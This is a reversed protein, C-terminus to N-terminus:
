LAYTTVGLTIVNKKREPVYGVKGTKGVLETKEMRELDEPTAQIDALTRRGDALCGIVTGREPAGNADHRIMYAEITLPGSAKEVPLPLEQREIENQASSDDRYEWRNGPPTAGYIGVSQKSNYWGNATILAKLKPDSRIKDTIAAIAHLSYNNGPGGFYPLGGTVSLGRPDDAALGLSQRAIEVASPFCSYIDFAGIDDMSLSAQELSLRAAETLAPSDILSPRQSVHWVNRFDAGGLPYVWRSRDIGMAEAMEESTLIVGAAQDVNINAMMFKTYPYVVIRNKEGPRTIDEGSLLSRNWAYPNGAAVTCLNHCLNGLRERHQEVTEQAAARLATEFFPYMFHPLYLDYAGEVDNLPYRYGELTESELGDGARLLIDFNVAAPHDELFPQSEQEPWDFPAKGQLARNLGYVAEAGTVLVAQCEGNSIARCYHNILMQPTNGGIPGYNLYTAQIGLKECLSQPANRYIWTFLNVVCVADIVRVMQRGIRTDEIAMRSATAMMSLPDLAPLASRAQTYQAAGVIVPTAIRKM